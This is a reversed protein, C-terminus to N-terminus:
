RPGVQSCYLHLVRQVQQRITLNTTDIFFSDLSRTLPAKKRTSDASDRQQLRAAQRGVQHESRSKKKTKRRAREELQANLYIKLDADPFVVTTTDRGEVVLNHQKGIERQLKVMWRRVSPYQSILSISEEIRKSRLKSSIDRRNLLIRCTGKGLKPKLDIGKLAKKLEDPKSTDLGEQLVMFTLARYLAGTDLYSFGLRKAVLRATTSKGAGAPGDIAIVRNRKPKRL